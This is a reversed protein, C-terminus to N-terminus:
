RLVIEKDELIMHPNGLIIYPNELRSWQVIDNKGDKDLVIAYEDSNIAWLKRIHYRNPNEKDQVAIRKGLFQALYEADRIGTLNSM